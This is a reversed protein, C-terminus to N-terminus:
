GTLRRILEVAFFKGANDKNGVNNDKVMGDAGADDVDRNVEVPTPPSCHHAGRSLTSPLAKIPPSLPPPLPRQGCCQPEQSKKANIERKSNFGCLQVPLEFHISAVAQAIFDVTKRNSSFGCLMAPPELENTM